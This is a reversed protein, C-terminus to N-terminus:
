IQSPRGDKTYPRSQTSRIRKKERNEHVAQSSRYHGPRNQHDRDNTDTRSPEQPHGRQKKLEGNGDTHTPTSDTIDLEEGTPYDIKGTPRNAHLTTPQSPVQYGKEQLLARLRHLTPGPLKRWAGQSGPAGTSTDIDVGYTIIAKAMLEVPHQPDCWYHPGYWVFIQEGPAIDRLPRM